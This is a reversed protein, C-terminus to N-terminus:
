ASRRLQRQEADRLAIKRDMATADYLRRYLAVHADTLTVGRRFMAIRATALLSEFRFAENLVGNWWSVFSPVYKPALRGAPLLNCFAGINTGTNMLTGLGTKTHDGIFCGVKTLGTRISTGAQVVSVEGYDNRLDSNHTGASLNVWEGIYSHGLFGEHYKNSYGHIISTEVEGGVRCQMGLSTGARIKAGIVQSKPGIYCPGELRTFATVLADEDIVVPGKTTDAVVMPEICATLAVWLQGLPGSIMPQTHDSNDQQPPLWTFDRRIEDANCEVLHWPYALLRGGASVNPMDHQWRHMSATIDADDNVHNRLKDNRIFAYAAEGNMVCVCSDGPPMFPEDPPLWRSNVLLVDNPLAANIAWGPHTLRAVEELESRVFAGAIPLGFYRAIKEALTTMGCRLEFVPRTLCLPEFRDARDEYLYLQMVRGKTMKGAM